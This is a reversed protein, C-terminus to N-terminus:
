VNSVHFVYFTNVSTLNLPRLKFTCMWDVMCATSQQTSLFSLKLINLVSYHINPYKLSSEQYKPLIPNPRQILQCQM